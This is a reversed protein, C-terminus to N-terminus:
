NQKTKLWNICKHKAETIKVFMEQKGGKDPHHVKVLDRYAVQIDFNTVNEINLIKLDHFSQLPIVQISKILADSWMREWFGAGGFMEDEWKQREARENKRKEYQKTKADVERKCFENKYPAIVTAFFYNWLKEPFVGFTKNEIAKWKMNICRVSNDFGKLNDIAKNLELLALLETKMDSVFETHDFKNSESLKYKKIFEKTTM